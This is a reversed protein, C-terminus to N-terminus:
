KVTTSLENPLVIMILRKDGQSALDFRENERKIGGFEQLSNTSGMLCSTFEFFTFLLSM